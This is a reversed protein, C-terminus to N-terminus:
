SSSSGGDDESDTWRRQFAPTPMMPQLTPNVPVPFHRGSSVVTTRGQMSGVEKCVRDLIDLFDRVIVFIRFPHAEERAANGHFYETIEKVLSLAVSGEARIRLIEEEAKHKFSSMSSAFLANAACDGALHVAESIKELGSVLKSVYSELVVPDMSAAKKVNALEGSLGAVMKLGLKRSNDAGTAEASTASHSDIHSGEYRVIEQVVFHLLTTKGDTGKVDVLKLLTDLKFAHADGRNTGDNMRNGTKLVAELLKLFLRSNRLEECAAELTKFSKRLYAIESEFNASYLMAEVRKFAFPIDLVAKLFREAAGLKSNQGETYGKLKVEEEKTPAMKQLTELLEAGLGDTNGEVLAECVEEKTVNLARLLIAINQSKKPDLVRNEQVPSPLVVRKSTEKPTTDTAKSLFLTEIMEENLQFSSSKLQDWVMARDSSARVKDWHLPKLKPRPTEGLKEPSKNTEPSNPKSQPKTEPSSEAKVTDPSRRPSVLPPPRPIPRDPNSPPTSSQWLSGKPPPPPPPPPPPTRSSIVPQTPPSPTGSFSRRGSSAAKVSSGESPSSPLSPLTFKGDRPLHFSPPPLQFGAHGLVESGTSEGGSGPSPPTSGAPSTSKSSPYSPTTLNSAGSDPRAPSSAQLMRGSASKTAPSEKRNRSSSGRPSYFSESDDDDTSELGSEPRRCQRSLPPLPLLEPSRSHFSLPSGLKRNNSPSVNLADEGETRRTDVVTGLYLVESGNAVAVKTTSGPDTAPFLRISASRSAKQDYEGYSRRRRLLFIGALLVFLAFVSIIVPIIVKAHNPSKASSTPRVVNSPITVSPIAAPPPNTTPTTPTSTAPTTPNLPFFPTPTTSSPPPPSSHTTPDAPFFPQHLSRRSVAAPTAGAALHQNTFCPFLRLLFFLLFRLHCPFTPM